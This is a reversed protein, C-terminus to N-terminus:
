QALINLMIKNEEYCINGHYEKKDYNEYFM